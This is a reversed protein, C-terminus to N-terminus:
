GNTEVPLAHKDELSRVRVFRDSLSTSLGKAGRCGPEEDIFVPEDYGVAGSAPPRVTASQFRSRM